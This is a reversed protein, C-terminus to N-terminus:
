SLVAEQKKLRAIAGEGPLAFMHVSMTLFGQM